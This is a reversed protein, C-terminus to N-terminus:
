QFMKNGNAGNDQGFMSEFENRQARERGQADTTLLPLLVYQPGIVIKKGVQEADINAKM